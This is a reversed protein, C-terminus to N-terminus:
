VASIPLRRHRLVDDRVAALRDRRRQQQEPSMDEPSWDFGSDTTVSVSRVGPLAGVKEEAQSKLFGIMECFPSTLRLVLSVDGDDSVEASKILGMEALGMPNGATVSCPDKVEDLRAAIQDKEPTTM